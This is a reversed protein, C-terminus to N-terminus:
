DGIERVIINQIGVFGIRRMSEILDTIPLSLNPATDSPDGFRMDTEPEILMDTEQQPERAPIIAFRRELKLQEKEIEEDPVLESYGFHWALRPNNPDLLLVKYEVDKPKLM